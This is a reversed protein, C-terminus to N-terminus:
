TRIYPVTRAVWHPYESHSIATYPVPLVPPPPGMGPPPGSPDLTMTNSGLMDLVDIWLWSSETKLVWSDLWNPDCRYASSNLGPV